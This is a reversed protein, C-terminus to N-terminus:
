RTSFVLASQHKRASERALIWQRMTWLVVLEPAIISMVMLQLRRLAVASSKESPNPISARHLGHARFYDNPLESSEANERM